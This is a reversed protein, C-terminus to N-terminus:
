MPSSEVSSSARLVSMPLAIEIFIKTSLTCLQQSDYALMLSFDLLSACCNRCLHRPASLMLLLRTLLRGFCYFQAKMMCDYM